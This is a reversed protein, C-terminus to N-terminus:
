RSVEPFALPMILPAGQRSLLEPAGNSALTLGTAWGSRGGPALALYVTGPADGPLPRLVPGIRGALVRVAPALALATRGRFSTRPLEERLATELFGPDVGHDAASRAAVLLREVQGSGPHESGPARPLLAAAALTAVQAAL